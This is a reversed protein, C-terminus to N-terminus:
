PNVGVVLRLPSKWTREVEHVRQFGAAEVLAIAEAGQYPHGGSRVTRLDLVANALPDPPGAFIGLMVLGRPRLAARLRALAKEAVSRPLFPGPLWAADFRIDDGLAVVDQEVIRVSSALGEAAINQRACAISPPWIDIGVIEAGPIARALAISLWGVGAGVDLVRRHGDVPPGLENLVAAMLPGFAGSTRGQANLTAPDDYTWGPPTEPKEMLDNAVRFAARIAGLVARKQEVSTAVLMPAAQRVVRGVHSAIPEPVNTGEIDRALEVAVAAVAETDVLLQMVRGFLADDSSEGM